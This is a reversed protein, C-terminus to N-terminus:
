RCGSGNLAPRPSHQLLAHGLEHALDSARRGPSHADNYVIMRTSGDFVTVGSFEGRNTGTFRRVAAAAARRLETLPVM